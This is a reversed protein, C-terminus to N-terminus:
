QAVEKFKVDQVIRRATTLPIQGVLVVTKGNIVEAYLTDIGQRWAQNIPMENQDLLYLSFTFLGDSYLQTQTSPSLGDSHFKILKFGKPVWSPQWQYNTTNPSYITIEPPQRLQTATDILTQPNALEDLTIVKFQSLIEGNRDTIEGRLPLHSQEDIWVTYAYRFEDKPILKIVNAIRNAVRNKGFPIFDYYQTLQSFDSYVINPLSDIMNNSRISFPAYNASFYSITNEKQWIETRPGDLYLLQAYHNQQQDSAHRYSLAYSENEESYTFTMVYNQQQFADKMQILHDVPSEQTNAFIPFASSSILLIILSHLLKKAM